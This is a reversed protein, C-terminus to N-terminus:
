ANWPLVPGLGAEKRTHAVSSTRESRREVRCRAQTCGSCVLSCRQVLGLCHRECSRLQPADQMEDAKDDGAEDAAHEDGEDATLAEDCRRHERSGRRHHEARARQVVADRPLRACAQPHPTQIVRADIQQDGPRVCGDAQEAQVADELADHEGDNPAAGGNRDERLEVPHM